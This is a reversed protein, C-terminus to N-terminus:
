WLGLNKENWTGETLNLTQTVKKKRFVSFALIITLHCLFIATIKCGLKTTEYPCYGNHFVAWLQHMYLKIYIKLHNNITFRLFLFFHTRELNFSIVQDSQIQNVISHYVKVITKFLVKFLDLYKSQKLHGPSSSIPVRKTFYHLFCM